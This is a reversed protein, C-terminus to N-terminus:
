RQAWDNAQKRLNDALDNLNRITRQADNLGRLQENLQGCQESLKDELYRLAEPIVAVDVGPQAHDEVVPRLAVQEHAGQLLRQLLVGGPPRIMSGEAPGSKASWFSAPSSALPM